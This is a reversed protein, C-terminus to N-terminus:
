EPHITTGVYDEGSLISEINGLNEGHTSIVTIKAEAAHHAAVPDFPTNKGPSWDNGTVRLFDGWTISDIPEADPDQKPDATYVKEINTLNVLLDADFRDALIVADYDTSFGPKWGAAILVRGTFEEVATPDEVLPDTCYTGFMAKVLRANLRTAYIGTWDLETSPIDPIVEKLAAQYDRATRGGGIVLIARDQPNADLYSILLARFRRLYEIDIQDPVVM